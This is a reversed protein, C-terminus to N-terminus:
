EIPQIPPQPQQPEPICQGAQCIYGQNCDSNDICGLLQGNPACMTYTRDCSSSEETGGKEFEIWPGWYFIGTDPDKHCFRHKCEISATPDDICERDGKSCESQRPIPKAKASVSIVALVSIVVLCVLVLGVLFKAKKNM